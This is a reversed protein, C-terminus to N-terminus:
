GDIRRFKHHKKGDRGIYELTLLYKAQEEFVVYDRGIEFTQSFLGNPADESVFAILEKTTMFYSNSRGCTACGSGKKMSGGGYYRLKVLESTKSRPAYSPASSVNGTPEEISEPMAQQRMKRKEECSICSM